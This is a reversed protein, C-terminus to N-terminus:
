KKELDEGRYFRVDYKEMNHGILDLYTEKREIQKM